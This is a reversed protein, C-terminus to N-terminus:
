RGKENPELEIRTFPIEVVETEINKLKIADVPKLGIMRTETKNLSNILKPM